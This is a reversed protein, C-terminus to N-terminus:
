ETEVRDDKRFQWQTTPDIHVDGLTLTSESCPREANKLRYSSGGGNDVQRTDYDVSHYTLAKPLKYYRMDHLADLFLRVPIITLNLSM